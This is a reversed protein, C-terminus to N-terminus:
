FCLYHSFQIYKESTRGKEPLSHGVVTGPVLPGSQTQRSKVLQTRTKSMGTDTESTSATAETISGNKKWIINKSSGLEQIDSELIKGKKNLSESQKMDDSDVISTLEDLPLKDSYKKGM